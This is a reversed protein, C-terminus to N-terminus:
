HLLALKCWSLISVAAPLANKSRPYMILLFYYENLLYNSYIILLQIM